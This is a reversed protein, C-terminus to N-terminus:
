YGYFEENIGLAKNRLHCGCIMYKMLNIRFPVIVAYVSGRYYITMKRAGVISTTMESLLFEHGCVVLRDAFLEISGKGLLEEQKAREAKFFSINEDSFVPKDTFALFDFNRIYDLQICSWEHITEPIKEANNIKEFFGTGNIRVRLGCSLCFFEIGKSCLSKMNNCEPCYFLMCELYEAKRKGHFVIQATRNFDFDNICLEQQIIKDIEEGSMSALEEGQIVRVVGARMKGRSPKEMWRPKTFYGGRVQVLVLPANFKKALKGIGPVIPSESGYCSRNGSPFMAVSGGNKIVSMMNKVAILDSNGKSFPIPRVLAVMLKSLLGHRFITDTAVFNIGFNFGMALAFQDLGTQHNALILCPRKIGKSTKREFRFRFLLYLAPKFIVKLFWFVVSNAKKFQPKKM